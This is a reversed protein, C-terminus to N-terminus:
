ISPISLSMEDNNELIDILEDINARTDPNYGTMERVLYQFTFNQISFLEIETKHLRKLGVIDEASDYPHARTLIYYFTLGLSWVDTLNALEFKFDKDYLEPAAYLPTGMAKKLKDHDNLDCSLGFDIYHTHLTNKNIIINEPKIDRHLIGISHLFYLGYLLNLFIKKYEDDKLRKNRLFKTLEIYNENYEIIIYHYVEDVLREHLLPFFLQNNYLMLNDMRDLFTEDKFIPYKAIFEPNINERAVKSGYKESDSCYYKSFIHLVNIRHLFGVENEIEAQKSSQKMIYSKDVKKDNVIYVAGFAGEGLLKIKKYKLKYDRIKPEVYKSKYTDWSLCDKLTLNEDNYIRVNDRSSFFLASFEGLLSLLHHIFVFVGEGFHKLAFKTYNDSPFDEMTNDEIIYRRALQKRIYLNVKTIESKDIEITIHTM